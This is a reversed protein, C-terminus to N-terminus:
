KTVYSVTTFICFDLKITFNVCFASHGDIFTNMKM